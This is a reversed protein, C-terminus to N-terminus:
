SLICPRKTQNTFHKMTSKLFCVNPKISVLVGLLSALYAARGASTSPLPGLFTVYQAQGGPNQRPLRAPAHGRRNADLIRIRGIMHHGTAAVALPGSVQVYTNM